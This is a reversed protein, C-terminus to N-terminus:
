IGGSGGLLENEFEDEEESGGVLLDDVEVQERKRWRM